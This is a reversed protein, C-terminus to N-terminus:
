SLMNDSHEGSHEFSSEYDAKENGSSPISDGGLSKDGDRSVASQPRTTSASQPRSQASGPRGAISENASAVTTASEPRPLKKAEAAEVQAGQFGRTEQYGGSTDQTPPEQPIPMSIATAAQAPSAPNSATKLQVSNGANGPDLLAGSKEGSKSPEKVNAESGRRSSPPNGETYNRAIASKLGATEVVPDFTQGKMMAAGVQTKSVLKDSAFETLDIVGSCDKDMSRWLENAKERSIPGDALKPLAQMFEEYSIRSDGSLDIHRFANMLNGHKVYMRARLQDPTCDDIPINMVWGERALQPITKPGELKAAEEM